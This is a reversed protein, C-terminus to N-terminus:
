SLNPSLAVPRPAANSCNTASVAQRLATRVAEVTVPKKLVAFAGAARWGEAGEALAEPLLLVIAPDAGRDGAARAFAALLATTEGETATDAIDLLAVAVRTEVVLERVEAPDCVAARGFDAELATRLFSRRIPNDAVILLPVAPAAATAAVVDVTRYPLRVTFTAGQGPVSTVVIDGGLVRILHRSIALGLGTGGFQRTTTTDLQRFPEFITEFASPPIGVGTDSVAIVVWDGDSGTERSVEIAVTGAATFKVANSLLNNVVQRVRAPDTLLPADIGTMALRLDIGKDEAQARWLAAVDNMMATLDTPRTDVRVNGSDMKAFDLIDDVLTRMARGAADVLAVRDRTGGALKADALMVQTMGLIGNLPTRIEHSTTALFQSKAQLADGLEANTQELRTNAAIIEARSRRVSRVYIFLFVVTGMLVALLASFVIASQRARLRTLAVDRSLQGAKLTAIRANQNAFDFKATMLAANTSAALARSEDEMRRYTELHDLARVPDGLAKYLRYATLHLPSFSQDSRSQRSLSFATELDAEASALKGEALNLAGRTGLVMPRWSAAAPAECLKLGAAVVAEARRYQHQAIALDGINTLIRAMLLPSNIKRAIALSKDYAVQAERRRGLHLLANAINNNAPLALAPDSPYLDEATRYYYLTREFDQADQYISGISQLAKAQGRRDNIGAFMAFAQQLDALAEQPQGGGRRLHARLLLLDANLSSRPAVRSALALASATLPMAAAADNARLAGEGEIWQATAVAYDRDAGAPWAMAEMQAQQGLLRARVPDGLMAGKAAAITGEFQAMRAVAAPAPTAAQAPAALALLLMAAVRAALGSSRPRSAM